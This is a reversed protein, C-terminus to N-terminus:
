KKRKTNSKTKSTRETKFTSSSSTMKKTAAMPKTTIAQTVVTKLAPSNVNTKAEKITKTNVVAKEKEAKIRELLKAAPEDNPDQPVLKGEFAKKLISQRLAEAQALSQKISEEIKDCVSLRSEIEKVIQNQESVSCIPFPIERCTSVKVNWQGATAKSTDELWHITVFNQMFLSIYKSTVKENPRFFVIAQNINWEPFQNTVISVKGLPPGVINILVDGPYCISRKLDKKHIVAPIFTPNKKFNLTGDFNLNYVKLFPIEGNGETMFEAKPTYGNNITSIVDGTKVWTFEINITLKGEFAYKLVAQRYIKLQQQATKLSEIGKDLSSILEEIKLVIRHQEPLPPLPIILEKLIGQSINPQAGGFSQSVLNNRQSLLYNYLYKQNIAESKYIGCVAQNTAAEIGLFALKGVTAGYLAILLTGKPFIKASSNEIAENTIKEETDLIINHELEGSKVWPIKGVFYRSIKRSPTGGSTTFCVDGLKM